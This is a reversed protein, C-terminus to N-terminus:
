FYCNSLNQYDTCVGNGGRLKILKIDNVNNTTYIFGKANEKADAISANIDSTNYISLYYNETYQALALFAETTSASNFYYGAAPLLQAMVSLSDAHFSVFDVKDYRLGCLDIVEKVELAYELTFGSSKIELMPRVGTEACFSLLDALLPIPTNHYLESRYYGFDYQQLQALTMESATGTGNSTRDITSDHLLVWYGDSTRQLDTEVRRIGLDYATKFAVMTNEPVARNFGRHGIFFYDNDACDSGKVISFQNFRVSANTLKFNVIHNNEVIPIRLKVPKYVKDTVNFVALNTSNDALEIDSTGTSELDNKIEGSFEAMVLNNAPAMTKFVANSTKTIVSEYQNSETEAFKSYFLNFATGYTDTLKTTGDLSSIAFRYVGKPISIEQTKWNSWGGEYYGTTTDIPYYSYKYNTYDTLGIRLPENVIIDDSIISVANNLSDIHGGETQANLTGIHWPVNFKVDSYYKNVKRLYDLDRNNYNVEISVANLATTDIDSGDSYKLMILYYSPKKFFTYSASAADKWTGSTKITKNDTAIEAINYQIGATADLVTIKLETFDDVLLSGRFALRTTSDTFGVNAGFTQNKWFQVNKALDVVPSIVTNAKVAEIQGRVADGATPYVYNNTAVRIDTLEADAATGGPEYNNELATLRAVLANLQTQYNSFYPQILGTLTGDDAMEDLKVNIEEQVDLNDFYDNVFGQLENYAALFSAMTDNIYNVMQSDASNIFATISANNANIFTQLANFANITNTNEDHLSDVNEIVENLFNVVKCLLEYYSLSDDYVLPMVKQCWFRFSGTQKYTTRQVNISSDTNPLPNINIGPVVPEYDVSM